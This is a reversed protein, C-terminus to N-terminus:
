VLLLRCINDMCSALNERSLEMAKELSQPRPNTSFAATLGQEYAAEYGSELAGVIAVVPKGLTQARRCIGVVVKGGLSQGDLRGEGTVILDATRAREEFGITDLVVQIGPRLEGRCFAHLGAGMAGAAGGGPISAVEIGLDRRIVKALNRLGEDLIEVDEPAAGKQPGFVQAAGKPGYMPNDIDCMLVVETKGLRRDVGRMDVADINRLTGGCPIFAEGEASLFRVGLAAAAGCGGDTTCSGGLGVILRPVGRDLAGSMLQGVGYTNSSLPAPEDAVMPLGAAAAMEVIAEGTPLLGFFSDIAEGVPGTVCMGIREGGLSSLFADVSGEGGDAVPYKEIQCGPLRRLVVEEAIDCFTQASMSGKFSDPLLMIKKM